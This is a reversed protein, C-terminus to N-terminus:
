TYNTTQTIHTNKSANLGHLRPNARKARQPRKAAAAAVERGSRAKRARLHFDRRPTCKQCLFLISVGM